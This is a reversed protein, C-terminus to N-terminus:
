RSRASTTCSTRPPSRRRASASRPSRSTRRRHAPQPPPLRHAHRPARRDHQGHAPADPEDLVAAREPQSPSSSSTRRMAAAPARPTTPTSRAAPSRRRADVAPLRGRQAHRHPDRGARRDRRRRAPLRRDRRADHGLGRAAEDRRRRRAAARAPGRTSVTNGKGLLLVNVPEDDLAILMERLARPSPTCTTARTGESPGTGGGILTTMGAAVAQDVIQPCIFHVHCDIGGATLIRGEGAIIDTTPGIELTPTRRRRRHRPQRGQRARRHPRRPHRRRLARRGLPRARRREHHRPRARGARGHASGQLM